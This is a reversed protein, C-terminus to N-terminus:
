GSISYQDWLYLLAYWKVPEVMTSEKMGGDRFNLGAKCIQYSTV